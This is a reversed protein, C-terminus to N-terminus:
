KWRKLVEEATKMAPDSTRSLNVSGKIETIHSIIETQLMRNLRARAIQDGFPDIAPFSLIPSTRKQATEQISMTPCDEKKLCSEILSEALPDTVLIDPSLKTAHITTGSTGYGVKDTLRFGGGILSGLSFEYIYQGVAKGYTPEGVIVARGLDRLVGPIVEGNSVSFRNVLIVLPTYFFGSSDFARPSSSFTIRASDRSVDKWLAGSKVFLSTIDEAENDRGGRNYRFDLIIGQLPTLPDSDRANNLALRFDHFSNKDFKLFEVYLINNKRHARVQPAPAIEKQANLTVERTSGDTNKVRVLLTPITTAMVRDELYWPGDDKAELIERISLWQDKSYSFLHTIKEGSKVPIDENSVSFVEIEDSVKLLFKEENMKLRLGFHHPEEDSEKSPWEYVSFVDLNRAFEELFTRYIDGVFDSEEVKTLSTRFPLISSTFEKLESCNKRSAELAEASLGSLRSTSQQEFNSISKEVDFNKSAKLYRRYNAALGILSERYLRPADASTSQIHRELVGDFVHNVEECMTAYVPVVQSRSTDNSSSGSSCASSFHALIVLFM